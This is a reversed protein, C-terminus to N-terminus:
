RSGTGHALIHEDIISAIKSAGAALDYRTLAKQRAARGMQQGLAPNSLIEMVKEAMAKTDFSPVVFGADHEVFEPPNGSHDFCIIPKQRLAAEAMVLPLAEERSTLLLMESADFYPIVDSRTGIFHVMHKRPSGKVQRRIQRLAQPGGGIWVFHVPSASYHQTVHDAVQLFLDPGKRPEISGCACVIRAGPALNLERSVRDSAQPDPPAIYQTVPVTGEIIEISSARVGHREVLNHKASASVAIYLSVQRELISVTRPTLRRISTELEHVHCIVPCNLFSLFEVMPASALTNAYIFRIDSRLLTDRLRSLHDSTRRADLRLRRLVRNSLTRRPAFTHVTAVDQFAPILDGSSTGILVECRLDRHQRFWRLLNLLVIPAGMQSADHSLFLVTGKTRSM